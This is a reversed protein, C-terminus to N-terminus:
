WSRIKLTKPLSTNASIIASTSACASGEELRLYGLASYLGLVGTTVTAVLAVSHLGLFSCVVAMALVVSTAKGVRSAHHAHVEGRWFPGALYPVMPLQIIERSFWLLLWWGPVVGALALAWAVNVHLIKDMWGDVVSGTHSSAGMRRAVMGDAVDTVLALVYLGLALNRQYVLLPIVVALPLRSLTLLGPLSLLDRACLPEGRPAM